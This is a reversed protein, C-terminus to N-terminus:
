NTKKRSEEEPKKDNQTSFQRKSEIKQSMGTYHNQQNV